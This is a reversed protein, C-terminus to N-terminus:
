TCMQDPGSGTQKKALRPAVEVRLWNAFERRHRETDLIDSSIGYRWALDKRTPNDYLTRLDNAIARAEDESAVFGREVLRKASRRFM